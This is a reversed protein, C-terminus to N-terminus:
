LGSQYTFSADVRKGDDVKVSQRLIGYKEQWTALTYTGPPVHDIQFHGNKDTVAFFPHAFVAVDAKMWPHVDCRVLFSEPQSFSLDRSQGAAILAFNFAENATCLGHVNHLTPDNTTVHLTQGARLAVVHPVYQCNVQDLAVPPLNQAPPAPPANEFYVIVNQLHGSEDAVVSEEKL